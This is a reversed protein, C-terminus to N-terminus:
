NNRSFGICSGHDDSKVISASEILLFAVSLFWKSYSMQYSWFIDLAGLISKLITEMRAM